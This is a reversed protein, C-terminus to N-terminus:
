LKLFRCDVFKSGVSYPDLLYNETKLISERSCVPESEGVWFYADPGPGTYYFNKVIIQSENAPNFYVAGKFLKWHM